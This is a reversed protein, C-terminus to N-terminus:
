AQRRERSWSYGILVAVAWPVLIIASAFAAVVAWSAGDKVTTVLMSYLTPALAWLFILGRRLRKDRVYGIAFALASALMLIAVIQFIMVGSAVHNGLSRLADFATM